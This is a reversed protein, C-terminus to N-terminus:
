IQNLLFFQIEFGARLFLSLSRQNDLKVRAFADPYHRRIEKLMFLGIGKRQLHPRVCIRIDNNIVGIYGAFKGDYLCVYYDACYKKMYKIQAKKTIYNNDVFGDQVRCDNRLKRVDEYYTSDIPILRM